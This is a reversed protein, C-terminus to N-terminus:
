HPQPLYSRAEEVSLGHRKALAVFAREAGIPDREKGESRYSFYNYAGTPNSDIFAQRAVEAQNQDGRHASFDFASQHMRNEMFYAFVRETGASDKGDIFWFSPATKHEGADALEKQWLAERSAVFHSANQDGGTEVWLRYAERHEGAQAATQSLSQLENADKLHRAVAIKVSLPSQSSLMLTELHKPKIERLGLRKYDDQKGYPLAIGGRAAAITEPGEYGIAKFMFYAQRPNSAVHIQAWRLKLRADDFAAKERTEDQHPFFDDYGAQKATHGYLRVVEGPNLPLGHQKFLEFCTTAYTIDGEHASITLKSRVLQTLMDKRKERDQESLAISVLKEFLDRPSYKKQQSVSAKFVRNLGKRDKANRFSEIALEFNHEAEAREGILRYVEERQQPQLKDGVKDLVGSLTEASYDGTALIQCVNDGMGNEALLKLSDSKTYGGRGKQASAVLRQSFDPPCEFLLRGPSKPDFVMNVAKDWKGEGLLRDVIGSMVAAREAVPRSPLVGDGLVAEELGLAVLFQGAQRPKLAVDSVATM